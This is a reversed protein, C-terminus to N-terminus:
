ILRALRVCLPLPLTFAFLDLLLTWVVVRVARSRLTAPSGAAM